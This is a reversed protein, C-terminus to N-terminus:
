RSTGNGMKTLSVGSNATRNAHRCEVHDWKASTEQISRPSIKQGVTLNAVTGSSNVVDGNGALSGWTDTRGNLNLIGRSGNGNIVTTVTVASNDPVQNNSGLQIISGIALTQSPNPTTLFTTAGQYDSSGSANNVSISNALTAGNGGPLSAFTIGGPGTIKQSITWLNGGVYSLTGGQTGVSIGRNTAFSFGRTTRIEGGNLVIAAPNLSTPVKGLNQDDDVLVKGGNITVPGTFTNAIETITPSGNNPQNQKNGDSLDLLGTGNKTL